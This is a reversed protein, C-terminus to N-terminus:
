QRRQVPWVQISGAAPKHQYRTCDELRWRANQTQLEAVIRGAVAADDPYFFRVVPEENAHATGRMQAIGFGSIALSTALKQADTRALSSSQDIHITIKIGLGDAAANGASLPADAPVVALLLLESSVSGAEATTADNTAPEPQQPEIEARATARGANAQEAREEAAAAHRVSQLLQERGREIEGRLQELEAEAALRMEHESALAAFARAVRVGM